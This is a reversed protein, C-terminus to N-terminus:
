RKYGPSFPDILCSCDVRLYLWLIVICMDNCQWGHIMGRHLKGDCRHNSWYTWTHHQHHHYSRYIADDCKGHNFARTVGNATLVYPKLHQIDDSGGRSSDGPVLRSRTSRRKQQFVKMNLNVHQSCWLSLFFCPNHAAAFNGLHNDDSWKFGVVSDANFGDHVYLRTSLARFRSELISNKYPSRSSARTSLRLRNHNPRFFRPRLCGRSRFARNIAGRTNISNLTSRFQTLLDTYTGNDINM